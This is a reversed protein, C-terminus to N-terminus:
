LSVTRPESEKPLLKALGLLGLCFRTNWSRLYAEKVFELADRLHFLAAVGGKVPM